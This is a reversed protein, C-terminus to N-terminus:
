PCWPSAMSLFVVSTRQSTSASTAVIVSSRGAARLATVNSMSSSNCSTSRSASAHGSTRAMTTVPSPAANQAPSSTVAAQPSGRMSVTIRSSAPGCGGSVGSTSIMSARAVGVIAATLPAAIPLPMSMASSHSMRSAEVSARNASANTRMPKVASTM